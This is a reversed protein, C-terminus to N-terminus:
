SEFQKRYDPNKLRKNMMRDFEKQVGGENNPKKVEM